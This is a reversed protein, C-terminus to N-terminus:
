YLQNEFPRFNNLQPLPRIIVDKKIKSTIESSEQIESQKTYEGTLLNFKTETITKGDWNVYSFHVLEFEGNKFIFEYRSNGKIYFDLQLKGEEIYVDPIQSGNHAANKEIPYMAEIIETSSFFLESKGNPQSFFIQLRLPRTDNITDMSIIVKDLLDDNNLDGESQRILYNFNDNLNKDQSYMNTYSLLVTVLIIIKKM